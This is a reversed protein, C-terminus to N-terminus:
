VTIQEFGLLNAQEQNTVTTKSANALQELAVGFAKIEQNTTTLIATRQREMDEYSKGIIHRFMASNGKQNPLEYGDFVGIAGTIAQLLQDDSIPQQLYSALGLYDNYTEGSRPDRYSMITFTNTLTSYAARTGYAGGIVRIKNWLYDLNIYKLIPLINDPYAYELQVGLCNYSVQTPVVFATPLAPTLTFSNNSPNGPPLTDIFNHITTLSQQIDVRDLTLNILTNNNTFIKQALTELDTVLTALSKENLNTKLQKLFDFQAVGSIYDNIVGPINLTSQLYSLAMSNGSSLFASEYGAVEDKIFQKLKKHNNWKISSIIEQIVELLVSLKHPLSKGSLILYSKLKGGKDLTDLTSSGFNGTHTDLTVTLEHSTHEDTDFEKLARQLFPLLLYEEKTLGQIDFALQVYIISNTPIPQVLIEVDKYHSIETPIKEIEGQLDALTLKPIKAKAELTDQTQQHKILENTNHIISELETNSLSNKYQELEAIQRKEQQKLLTKQPSMKVCVQHTNNLLYDNLKDSLYNPNQALNAKITALDQAFRIQELPDKEYIWGQLMEIMMSLGKPYSGTNMERLHFETSNISAEIQAAGFGEQTISQLTSFILDVVKDYNELSVYKLGVMFFPQVGFSEFGSPTLDEGLDSDILAKYLPADANGLLLDNLLSLEMANWDHLLWNLTIYGGREQEGPDFFVEKTALTTLPQQVSVESDIKAYEYHSLYEEIKEFRQESKDNGYFYIYSNSPHYYKSHFEKYQEYTLEPIRAPNGGSDNNYSTDPFLSYMVNDMLTNDPDSYVGRMENYVVGKITLPEEMNKLEYHWGEQAFTEKTLLPNFVADLYVDILNYFDKTNQSAVPYCTRDPYTFANLFTYLSGKLLDVFPEKTPYKKSGALVSHELIHPVGTSDSVPTRFTIGFVKNTDDNELMLIKAKTKKHEYFKAVTQYEEVLDERIFLYNDM